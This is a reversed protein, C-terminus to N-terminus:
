HDSVDPYVVSLPAVAISIALSFRAYNNFRPLALEDLEACHQGLLPSLEQRGPNALSQDSLFLIL